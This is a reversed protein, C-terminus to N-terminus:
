TNHLIRAYSPPVTCLRHSIDRCGIPQFKKFSLIANEDMDYSDNIHVSTFLPMLKDNLPFSKPDHMYWANAIFKVRNNDDLEEFNAKLNEREVFKLNRWDEGVINLAALSQIYDGMNTVRCRKAMENKGFDYSLVGPIYKIDKNIM